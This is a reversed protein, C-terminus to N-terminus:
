YTFLSLFMISQNIYNTNTVRTTSNKSKETLEVIWNILEGTTLVSLQKYVLSLRDIVSYASNCTEVEVWMELPIKENNEWEDLPVFM